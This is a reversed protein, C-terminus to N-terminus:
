LRGSILTARQNHVEWRGHSSYTYQKRPMIQKRFFALLGNSQDRLAQAIDANMAAKRACQQQGADIAKKLSQIHQQEEKSFLHGVDQLERAGPSLQQMCEAAWTKEAMMQRVLEQISFELGAVSQPADEQLFELEKDLLTGLLLLGRAQRELSQIIRTTFAM